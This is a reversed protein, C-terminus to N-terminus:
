KGAFRTFADKIMPILQMALLGILFAVGDRSATDSPLNFYSIALSPTFLACFFGFVVAAFAQRRSVDKMFSLSMLSGVFGAIVTSYKALM